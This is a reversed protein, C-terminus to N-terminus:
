RYANALAIWLWALFIVPVVTTLVGLVLGTLALGGGTTEGRKAKARGRLGTIVAAIGLPISFLLSSLDGASWLAAMGCTFAAWGDKNSPKSLTTTLPQLPETNMETNM